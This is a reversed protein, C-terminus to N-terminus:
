AQHYRRLYQITERVGKELPTITYGLERMAKDSSFAHNSFLLDVSRVTFRIDSGTLLFLLTQWGAWAKVFFKPVPLIRGKGGAQKRIMDFFRFYSVNPGGLIYREGSAGKEMALVHGNVVDDSYSFCLQYSGPAPVVAIGKELFTKILANTTLSHSTRGPGYIKGPSVVVAETLRDAYALVLDEAEKKSREYDIAFPLSRRHAEDIPEKGTSGLVGATSTFVMKQVGAEGAAELVNKTGMVNVDYFDMPRRAWAGVQAATHYVQQCGQMAALVLGKQRVDGKHLVINPHQLVSSKTESRVLAHVTHGMGVLKHALRHGIYGSAGTILINMCIQQPSSNQVLAFEYGLILM